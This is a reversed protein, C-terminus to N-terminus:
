GARLRRRLWRLVWGLVPIKDYLGHAADWYDRHERVLGEDDFVVRSVGHIGHLGPGLRPAEFRFDWVLFCQAGETVATSVVFRPQDLTAFMHEFVRLIAARGRVDNFPDVFRAEPAYLAVLDPLSAPTLAEYARVLAVVRPDAQRSSSALREM